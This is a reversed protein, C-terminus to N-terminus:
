GLGYMKITGSFTGSDAFFKIANHAATGWYGSIFPSYLYNGNELYSGAAHYNTYITSRSPDYLYLYGCFSADAANSQNYPIPMQGTHQNRCGTGYTELAPTGGAEANYARCYSQCGAQTGWTTGGDDSSQMGFEANAASVSIDIMQFIYMKYATTILSTFESSAAASSTNTTLLALNGSFGGNLTLDGSGDSTIINNGGADVIKNTKLTAGTPITVVDGAAGLNLDQSVGSDEPLVTDSYVRSM